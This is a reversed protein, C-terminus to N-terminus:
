SYLTKEWENRPFIPQMLWFVKLGIIPTRDTYLVALSRQRHNFESRPPQARVMRIGGATM